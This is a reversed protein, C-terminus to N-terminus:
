PRWPRSPLSSRLSRHSSAPVPWRLRVSSSLPRSVHDFVDGRFLSGVGARPRSQLERVRESVGHTEHVPPVPAGEEFYGAEETVDGQAQFVHCRKTVVQVLDNVSGVRVLYVLPMTLSGLFCLCSLALAPLVNSM